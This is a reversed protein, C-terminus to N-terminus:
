LQRLLIQARMLIQLNDSATYYHWECFGNYWWTDTASSKYTEHILSVLDMAAQICGAAWRCLLVSHSSPTHYRSEDPQEDFCLQTLM